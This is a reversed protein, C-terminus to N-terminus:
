KKNVIWLGLLLFILVMGTMIVSWLQWGTM